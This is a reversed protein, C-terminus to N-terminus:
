KLIDQTSNTPEVAASTEPQRTELIVAKTMEIVGLLERTRIPTNPEFSFSLNNEDWEIILKRKM